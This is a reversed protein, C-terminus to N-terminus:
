EAANQSQATRKSQQRRRRNRRRLRLGPGKGCHGHVHVSQRCVKQSKDIDIFSSRSRISGAGDSLLHCLIAPINDTNGLIKIVIIFQHLRQGFIIVRSSVSASHGPQRVIRVSQVQEPLFRKGHCPLAPCFPISLVAGSKGIGAVARVTHDIFSETIILRFYSVTHIDVEVDEVHVRIGILPIDVGPMGLQDLQSVSDLCTIVSIGDDDHAIGVATIGPLIDAGPEHIRDIRIFPKLNLVCPYLIRPISGIRIYSLISQHCYILAASVLIRLSLDHILDEIDVICVALYLKCQVTIIDRSIKGVAASCSQCVVPRDYTCKGIGHLLFFPFMDVTIHHRFLARGGTCFFTISDICAYAPFTIFLRQSRRSM